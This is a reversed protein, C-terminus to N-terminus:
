RSGSSLLSVVWQFASVGRNAGSPNLMRPDTVYEWSIPHLSDLVMPTTTAHGLGFENTM